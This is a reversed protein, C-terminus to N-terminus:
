LADYIFKHLPTEMYQSQSKLYLSATLGKDKRLTQPDHSCNGPFVQEYQQGLIHDKKLKYYGM